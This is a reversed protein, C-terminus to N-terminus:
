LFSLTEASPPSSFSYSRRQNTGPVLLNMYQGPLFIVSDAGDLSFAIATESLRKVSHLRARYTQGRTKCAESSAAIAVVLDTKPQTQCALALGSAAEEETLADELYSGRDYKGPNSAANAPAVFVTAVTSRSISGSTIPPTRLPRTRAASSLARSATRLTSRSVTAWQKRTESAGPESTTSTSSM